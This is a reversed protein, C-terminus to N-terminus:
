RHRAPRIATWREGVHSPDPSERRRRQRPPDAAPSQPLPDAIPFDGAIVRHIAVGSSTSARKSMCNLVKPLATLDESNRLCIAKTAKEWALPFPPCPARGATRWGQGIVVETGAPHQDEVVQPRGLVRRTLKVRRASGSASRWYRSIRCCGSMLSASRMRCFTLSSGQPFLRVAPARGRTAPGHRQRRRLGPELDGAVLDVGHLAPSPCGSRPSHSLRRLLFAAGPLFEREAGQQHRRAKTRAPMRTRWIWVPRRTASCCNFRASATKALLTSDMRTVSASCRMM